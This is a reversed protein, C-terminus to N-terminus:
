RQKVINVYMSEILATLLTLGLLWPWLKIGSSLKNVNDATDAYLASTNDFNEPPMTQLDSELVNLNAYHPQVVQGKEYWRYLGPQPLATSLAKLSNQQPEVTFAIQQGSERKLEADAKSTGSSLQRVVKDGPEIHSQTRATPKPRMALIFEGLFPVFVPRKAWDSYNEKLPLNWFCVTGSEGRYSALATVDDEYSFLTKIKGADPLTLPVRSSFYGSAPDGYQGDSFLNFVEHEAAAIRVGFKRGESVVNTQLESDRSLDFLKQISRVPADKSPAVVVSTGSSILGSLATTSSGDWGDIMVMDATIDAIAATDVRFPEAWELAELARHWKEANGWVNKNSIAVSLKDKVKLICGRSDDLPFNDKDLSIEVPIHGSRGIKERFIVTKDKGAPLMVERSRRVGKTKLSVTRKMPKHSFNFLRASIRIETDKLPAAPKCTLDGVASNPAHKEATKVLALSIDDPVEMSVNSWQTKQFDSVICIEKKGEVNNLLRSALKLAQAADGKETTAEKRRLADILYSVNSGLQPFEAEPSDDIWVVNAKGRASLKKLIKTAESCAAAFRTQAGEVWNMSASADVIVVVRRPKFPTYDSSLLLLPLLFLSILTAFMFTRLMLLVWDRPRRIRNTKRVVRRLFTVSSFWYKPPRSRAFLHVLVPVAILAILPWLILNTWVVNM